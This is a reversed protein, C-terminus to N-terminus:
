EDQRQLARHSSSAPSDQVSLPSPLPDLTIPGDHGFTTNGARRADPIQFGGQEYMSTGLFDGAIAISPNHSTAGPNTPSLTWAALPIPNTRSISPGLESNLQAYDGSESYCSGSLTISTVSDADDNLSTESGARVTASTTASSLRRLGPPPLSNTVSTSMNLSPM